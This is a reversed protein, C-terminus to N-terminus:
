LSVESVPVSQSWYLNLHIREQISTTRKLLNWDCLISLPIFNPSRTKDMTSLYVICQGKIPPDGKLPEVTSRIKDYLFILTARYFDIGYLDNHTQPRVINM